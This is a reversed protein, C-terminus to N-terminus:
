NQLLTIIKLTGTHEVVVCLIDLTDTPVGSILYAPLSLSISDHPISPPLSLYLRAKCQYMHAHHVPLRM